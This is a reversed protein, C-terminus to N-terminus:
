QLARGDSVQTSQKLLVKLQQGTVPVFDLEDLSPGSALRKVVIPALYFGCLQEVEDLMSALAKSVHVAELGADLLLLERGLQPVTNNWSIPFIRMAKARREEKPEGDVFQAQEMLGCIHHDLISEFDLIAHVGNRALETYEAVDSRTIDEFRYIQNAIMWRALTILNRATSAQTAASEMSYLPGCRVGFTIGKISELLNPYHALTEGGPLSVDFKIIADPKDGTDAVRWEHKCYKTLMWHPRPQGNRILTAPISTDYTLERQRTANAM